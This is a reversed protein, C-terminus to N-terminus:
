YKDRFTLFRSVKLDKQQLATKTLTLEQELRYIKVADTVVTAM